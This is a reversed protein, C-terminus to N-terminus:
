PPKLKGTFVALGVEEDSMELIRNITGKRLDAALELIDDYLKRLKKRAHILREVEARQSETLSGKEWRTLQEDFVKGLERADTYVRTVRDVTPDDLVHTQGKGPDSHCVPGRNGRATRRACLFGEPSRQHPSVDTARTEEERAQEHDRSNVSRLSASSRM